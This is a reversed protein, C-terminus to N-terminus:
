YDVAAIAARAPYGTLAHSALRGSMTASEMAGSDLGNRTWDGALYLNELEGPDHAGLRYRSSGAVSLVYRGSPDLNARWYQSEFRGAGEREGPDVLLSFPCTDAEGIRPWLTSPAVRGLLERASIEVAELGRAAATRGCDYIPGAPTAVLPAPDVLPSVFYSLHGPTLTAPWDEVDVLHTLDVWVNLPSLEDYWFGTIPRGSLSWGLADIRPETWVQLAQTATTRVERLMRSWRPSAEALEGCLYPLAGLGIGLLVEDFDEGRRLTLQRSDPLDTFPSELDACRAELTAGEELQEWRPASPWCPLGKVSVLPAYPERETAQIRCSISDVYRRTPDLHLGQVEHFFRFKVGRRKLVEYLPAFIVDGTGAMMKWGFAGKYCFAARVLGKLLTGAEYSANPAHASGNPIRTDGGVYAFSSDYMVRMLVSDLMRGGDPFARPTLWERFDQDNIVSYGRRWVDDEIVGLLISSSFNMMIWLRRLRDDGDLQNRLARWALARGLRLFAAAVRASGGEGVRGFLGLARAISSLAVREAAGAGPDEARAEVWERAEAVATRQGKWLAAGAWLLGFAPWYRRRLPTPADISPPSAPPDVFNLDLFRLGLSIVEALPLFAPGEGPRRATTPNYVQWPARRGDVDEIFVATSEPSLAQDWTALPADAPRGLEAYCARILEFTNDYFGFLNHIGHEEIRGFGEASMNRGSAGKGGLRWGMQYVTVDLEDRAPNDPHTLDFVAALAGM